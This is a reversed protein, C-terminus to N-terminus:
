IGNMVSGTEEILFAITQFSPHYDVGLLMLLPQDRESPFAGDSIGAKFGYQPFSVTRFKLSPSPFMPMMRLGSRAMARGSWDLLQRNWRIKLNMQFFTSANSAGL